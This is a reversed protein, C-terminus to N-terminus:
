QLSQVEPSGDEPSRFFEEKRVEGENATINATINRYYQPLTPRSKLCKLTQYVVIEHHATIATIPFSNFNSLSRVENTELHAEM